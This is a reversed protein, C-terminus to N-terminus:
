AAQNKHGSREIVEGRQESYIFYEGPKTSTLEAFRRRAQALGEISEIWLPKGDPLRKFIDFITSM